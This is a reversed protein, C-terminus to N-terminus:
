MVIRLINKQEYKQTIQKNNVNVAIRSSPNSKKENM